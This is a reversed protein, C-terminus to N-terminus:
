ACDPRPASCRSGAIVAAYMKSRGGPPHGFVLAEHGHNHALVEEDLGDPDGHESREEALAGAHELDAPRARVQRYGFVNMREEVRGRFRKPFSVLDSAADAAVGLPAAVQRAHHGTKGVLQRPLVSAMSAFPEDPHAVSVEFPVEVRSMRVDTMHTM